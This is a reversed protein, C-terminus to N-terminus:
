SIPLGSSGTERGASNGTENLDEIYEIQKSMIVRGCKPCKFRLRQAKYPPVVTKKTLPDIFPLEQQIKSTKIPVLDQIDTGDTLRKYGCIECYLQYHKVSM